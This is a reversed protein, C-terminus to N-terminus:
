PDDPLDTDYRVTHQVVRKDENRPVDPALRNVRTRPLHIRRLECARLELFNAYTTNESTRVAETWCRHADRVSM